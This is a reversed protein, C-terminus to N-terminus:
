TRSSSRSGRSRGKGSARFGLTSNIPSFQAKVESGNQMVMNGQGNGREIQDDLAGEEQLREVVSRTVHDILEPNPPTQTTDSTILVGKYSLLMAGAFGLLFVAMAPAAYRLIKITNNM